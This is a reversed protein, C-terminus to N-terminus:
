LDVKNLQKPPKVTFTKTEGNRIATVTINGKEKEKSYADAFDKASTIKTGNLQIVLDDSAFGASAANSGALVDTVKAGKGAEDDQLSLGLRPRHSHTGIDDKFDFYRRPM